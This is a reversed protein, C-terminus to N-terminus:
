VVCLVSTNQEFFVHTSLHFHIKICLRNFVEPESERGHIINGDSCEFEDDASKGELKMM